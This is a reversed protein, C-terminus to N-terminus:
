FSGLVSVLKEKLVNATFPKVIYNTVGATKAQILNDVNNEATVMIFPTEKYEPMARAARLFDIGQMPSMNWDSFILEYKKKRLSELATSGDSAEDIDKFGIQNLLSIIISRMTKYDDVVLVSLSTVNSM